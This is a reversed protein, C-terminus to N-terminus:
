KITETLNNSELFSRLINIVSPNHDNPFVVYAPNIFGVLKRCLDSPISAFGMSWEPFTKHKAPRDVLRIINEHRKDELISAFIADVFEPAGEILQIFIGASYLLLGTIHHENNRNRAVELINLLDEETMPKVATSIYVIQKM